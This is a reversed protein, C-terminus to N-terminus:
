RSRAVRKRGDEIHKLYIRLRISKYLYVKRAPIEYRFPIIEFLLGRKFGWLDYSVGDFDQTKIYRLTQEPYVDKEYLIAASSRSSKENLCYIISDYPQLDVDKAFLVEETEFTFYELENQEDIPIYKYIYPLFPKDEHPTGWFDDYRYPPIIYTGREETIISFDSASFVLMTDIEDVITKRIVEENDSCAVMTITLAAFLLATLTVYNKRM